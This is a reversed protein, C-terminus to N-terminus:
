GAITVRGTVEARPVDLVMGNAWSGCSLECAAGGYGPACDCSPAGERVVCTGHGSCTTGACLDGMVCATGSAVYGPDCDCRPSAGEVQCRGHGSCSVGACPNMPDNVVCALGEAHYGGECVCEPGAAGLVCSGHGACDSDCSQADGAGPGGDRRVFGRSDCGAAMFIAVCLLVMRNRMRGGCRLPHALAGMTRDEPRSPSRTLRAQRAM